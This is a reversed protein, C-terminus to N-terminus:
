PPQRLVCCCCAATQMRAAEDDGIDSYEREAVPRPPDRQTIFYRVMYEYSYFNLTATYLACPASSLLALSALPRPRGRVM